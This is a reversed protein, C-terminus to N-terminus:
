VFCSTEGLSCLPQAFIVEVNQQQNEPKDITFRGAYFIALRLVPLGAPRLPPRVDAANRHM